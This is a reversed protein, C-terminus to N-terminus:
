LLIRLRNDYDGGVNRCKGICSGGWEANEDDRGGRPGWVMLDTILGAAM